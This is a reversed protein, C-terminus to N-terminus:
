VWGCVVDVCVCVFMKLSRGCKRCLGHPAYCSHPAGSLVTWHMCGPWITRVACVCTSSLQVPVPLTCTNTGSVRVTVHEVWMTGEVGSMCMSDCVVCVCAQVQVRGWISDRWSCEEWCCDLILARELERSSFAWSHEWSSSFCPLVSRTSELGHCYPLAPHLWGTGSADTVSIRAEEGLTGPAADWLYHPAASPHQASPPPAPPVPLMRSGAAPPSVAHAPPLWFCPLLSLPSCTLQALDSPAILSSRGLRTRQASINSWPVQQLLRGDGTTCHSLLWIPLKM